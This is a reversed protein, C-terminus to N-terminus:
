SEEKFEPITHWHTLQYVHDGDDNEFWEYIIDFKCFIPYQSYERRALFKSGDKPATEIPQWFYPVKYEATDEEM